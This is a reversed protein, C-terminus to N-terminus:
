FQKTKDSNKLKELLTNIDINRESRKKNQELNYKINKAGLLLIIKLCTKLFNICREILLLIPTIIFLFSGWVHKLNIILIKNGIIM